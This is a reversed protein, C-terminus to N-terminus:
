GTKAVAEGAHGRRAAVLAYCLPLKRELGAIMHRGPAVEVGRDGFIPFPSYDYESFHTLTLGEDLLASAVEGLGHNWTVMRQPAQALVRGDVTPADTYTGETEVIPGAGRYAYKFDRFGEDLTWLIPHFEAFVLRGGPRLFHAVVAAWRRVDPLWGITGYSAFVVDFDGPILGPAAYVDGEVFTAALGARRALRRAEGIARPSLDLGTAEAGMRALSLTDQGFHCQLHLLRRGALAGGLLPLEIERLSTAGALWGEVDYFASALHQVTRADWAARNLALYDTPPPM